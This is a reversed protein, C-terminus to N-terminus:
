FAKSEERVSIAAKYMSIIFLVGGKQQGVATLWKTSPQRGVLRRGDALLKMGYKTLM